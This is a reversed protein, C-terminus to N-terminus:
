KLYNKMISLDVTWEYQSRGEWKEFAEVLHQVAQEETWENVMM